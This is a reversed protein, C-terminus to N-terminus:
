GRVTREYLKRGAIWFIALWLMSAAIGPFLAGTDLLEPSFTMEGPRAPLGNPLVGIVSCMLRSAIAQPILFFYSKLSATAAIVFYTGMNLLLMPFIGMIQQLMLCFPVQWVFTVLLLATAAVQSGLSPYVAFSMQMGRQLIAAIVVSAAFIVILAVAAERIVYLVKGDWVHKQIKRCRLSPVTGWRRIGSDRM